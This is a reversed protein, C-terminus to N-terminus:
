FPITFAISVYNSKEIVISGFSVSDGKLSLKAKRKHSGASIFLPISILTTAAGVYSLWLGENNNTTDNDLIGGSLNIAMGAGIMVVGSGICIWAATNTRKQKLSYFDYLQQPTKEPQPEIVQGNILQSSMILILLIILLRKM